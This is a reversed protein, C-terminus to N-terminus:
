EPEGSIFELKGVLGGSVNGEGESTVSCVAYANFLSNEVAVLQGILGGSVLGSVTEPAAYANQIKYGENLTASGILGGVRDGTQVNGLAYVNTIVADTIEGFLGGVYAGSVGTVEATSYCKDATGEVIGILGGVMSSGDCSGSIAFLSSVSGGSQLYGIAIGDYMGGAVVCDEFTTKIVSGSVNGFIGKYDYDGEGIMSLNSITFEGGDFTGSFPTGSEAGIPIFEVGTLDIDNDLIYDGALDNNINQL